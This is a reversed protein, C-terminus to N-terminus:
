EAVVPKGWKDIFGAARGYEKDQPELNGTAGNEV